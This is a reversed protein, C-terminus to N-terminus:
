NISKEFYKKLILSLYNKNIPKSVYDDCGAAKAKLEDGSLAFATKAIIIIEKNFKRIEKVADYGNMEPMQIDMLILNVDPNKRCIDIVEVGTEATLIEHAYPKLNRTLLKASIKDDEAILIKLNKQWNKIGEESSITKELTLKEEEKYNSPLTFYFTSGEHPKSKVWIKGGLMEVYAKSISLGLGAGEYNRSLTESGQRFREFIIEQKGEPIGDGTDKVYFEYFKDKKECGLEIHGEWTFKIANKVLNTLIAYVKEKDTKIYAQTESLPNKYFIQIKKQDTEPRFFSCIYEIQDNINTKTVSVQMQGSEVRSISIIDNIISLMRKGSKRIIDVYEEKEEKLLDPEKLLEAFGLIGNMPTRIEHSMNALFASKLRDSEEAKEKAIILDNEVRKSETIDRATGYQGTIEGEKNFLFTVRDEIWVYEGSIKNKMRYIRSRLEHSKFISNTEEVVKEKDDPHIANFWLQPNQIFEEPTYGLIKETQKSVFSVDGNMSSGNEFSVSYIIEDVNDIVRRFKEESLRLADAAKKNETIDMVTAVMTDQDYLPINVANIFHESGDKHTVLCNEWHMISSDGSQIDSMVRTMIENRYNKDPYVKQFFNPIDNLEEAPWGYIEEFKKNAYFNQGEITALAIGIPINDLVTQIFTNKKKLTIEAQKRSTIDRLVVQIALGDAYKFSTASVEVDIIKGDFRIIQEEVLPVMTEKLNMKQIRKKILEHFDTHFFELPTRGIIQDPSDAGLLKLASPNFYIIRNQYNIYIADQSIEVLTRYKEENKMLTDTAIKQITIDRFNAVIAQVALEKSLNNLVGEIWHWSGDKHRIRIPSLALQGPNQVIEFFLRQSKELDNQHVFDLLNKELIDKEKFGFMRQCSPSSYLIFGNENLLLIAGTSNEILARFKKESNSLAEEARRKETVDQLICHTKDFSGDKKHGIRGDFAIFRLDGNRHRMEFESHVSGQAKFLQFRKQFAPVYTEGLFDGFWKGIVEERTYGLTSLWAENVEIIHGESDLSQYGLPAREFLHFFREESERLAIETKKHEKVEIKLDELLRLTDKQILELERTRAAVLNALREKENKKQRNANKIKIMARIQAILESQDIPKSLFAEAGLNLAKIRNEKDGNLSTLFVVPTDQIREDQKIWQCVEFGDMDPMKIDLLIVDPDKEIALEIGEPGKTATFLLSDPFADKIIAKISILNDFQDDIALIKIM